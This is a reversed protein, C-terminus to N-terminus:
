SGHRLSLNHLLNGLNSAFRSRKNGVGGLGSTIRDGVNDPVVTGHQGHGCKETGDDGCVVDHCRLEICKQQHASEPDHEDLESTERNQQGLLFIDRGCFSIVTSITLAM